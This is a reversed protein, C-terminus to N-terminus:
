LFSECDAKYHSLLDLCVKNQLTKHFKLGRLVWRAHVNSYGLGDIIDRISGKSMSLKAALTLSGQKATRLVQLEFGL